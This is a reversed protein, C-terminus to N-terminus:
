VYDYAKAEDASNFHRVWHPGVSRWYILTDGERRRSITDRHQLNCEKCWGGDRSIEMVGPYPGPM